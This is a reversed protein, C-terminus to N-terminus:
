RIRNRFLIGSVQQVSGYQSHFSHQQSVFGVSLANIGGYQDDIFSTDEDTFQAVYGSQFCLFCISCFWMCRYCTQFRSLYNHFYSNISFIVLSELGQDPFLNDPLTKLHNHSMDVIRLSHSFKFLDSPMDALSNHSLQLVQLSRTNKFTDFDIENIQNHSLDLWQLNPM